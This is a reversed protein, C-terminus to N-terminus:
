RRGETRDRRWQADLEQARTPDLAVIRVEVRRNARRGEPSNDRSRPEWDAQSMIQVRSAEIGGVRVLQQAAREARGFALAEADPYKQTPRVQDDTHGIVVIRHPYHRMVAALGDLQSVLDPSLVDSGPAFSSRHDFRVLLGDPVREMPIQKSRPDPKAGVETPEDLSDNPRDPPADAGRFPDTAALLDDVPPPVDRDGDMHEIAGSSGELVGKVRLLDYEEMSSFTMLLVFFTVLLSIMDTFTVVWEPAGPAEEEPPPKCGM